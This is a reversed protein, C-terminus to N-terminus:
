SLQVLGPIRLTSQPFAKPSFFAITTLFRGTGVCRFRLECEYCLVSSRKMRGNVGEKNEEEVNNSGVVPQKRFLYRM